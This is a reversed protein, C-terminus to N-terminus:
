DEAISERGTRYERAVARLGEDIPHRHLGLVTEMRTVDAVLDGEDAMAYPKFSATTGLASALCEAVGRITWLEAGAVNIVGDADGAVAAATAGAATEVYTPTIRVGTAGALPIPVGEVLSRMLRPVLMDQQGEGFVFFYRLIAVQMLDRYGGAVIEAAYKSRLYFSTPAPPDDERIPSSRAGCVGGSSAYVFRRAGARRAYELLEVTRVTNVAMMGLAREPFHRFGRAQALHAVVDVRAPLRSAEIPDDLDHEVFDVDRWPLPPRRRVLAIVEHAPGLRGLLRGGILGTAGTLLIRVSL